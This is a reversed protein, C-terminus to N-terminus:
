PKEAIVTNTKWQFRGTIVNYEAVGAGIASRNNDTWERYWIANNLLIVGGLCVALLKFGFVTDRLKNEEHITM